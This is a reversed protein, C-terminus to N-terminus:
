KTAGDEAEKEREWPAKKWDEHPVNPLQYKKVLAEAKEPDFELRYLGKAALVKQKHVVKTLSLGNKPGSPPLSMPNFTGIRIFAVKATHILDEYNRRQIELERELDRVREELYKKDKAM